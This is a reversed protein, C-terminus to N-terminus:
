TTWPREIGSPFNPKKRGRVIELTRLGWAGSVCGNVVVVNSLVGGVPFEISASCCFSTLPCLLGLSFMSEGGGRIRLLIPPVTMLLVLFSPAWGVSERRGEGVGETTVISRTTRKGSSSGTSDAGVSAGDPLYTYAPPYGLGRLM